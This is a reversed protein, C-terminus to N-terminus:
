TMGSMREKLSIMELHSQHLEYRLSHLLLTFLVCALVVFLPSKRKQRTSVRCSTPPKWSHEESCSCTKVGRVLQRCQFGGLRGSIRTLCDAFDPKFGCFWLLRSLVVEEEEEEEGPWWRRPSAWMQSTKPLFLLILLTLPPSPRLSDCSSHWAESASQHQSRHISRFSTLPGTTWQQTPPPLSIFFFM